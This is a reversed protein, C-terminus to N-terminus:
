MSCQSTATSRWRLRAALRCRRRRRRRRRRASPNCPPNWPLERRPLPPPPPPPTSLPPQAARLRARSSPALPPPRHCSLKTSLAGPKLLVFGRSSRQGLQPPTAAAPRRQRCTPSLDQSALTSLLSTLSPARSAAHTAICQQPPLPSHDPSAQQRRKAFHQTCASYYRSKVVELTHASSPNTYLRNASAHTPLRPSRAACRHSIAIHCIFVATRARGQLRNWTKGWHTLVLEEAYLLFGPGRTM